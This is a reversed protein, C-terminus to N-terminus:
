PTTEFPVTELVNGSSDQIEVRWAGIEQPQIIKSSYTRWSPPNVNLTVRARETDGYYWVHVIQTADQINTIKSLCYLKGVSVAFSTGTDVAERNVIQQCIVASAVTVTNSQQAQAALPILFCSAVIVVRVGTLLLFRKM